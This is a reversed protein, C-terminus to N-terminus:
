NPQKELAKKDIKGTANKPLDDLTIFQKPVKYKALKEMCYNQIKEVSLERGNNLSIFAIPIEGWKEHTVGIVAAENIEPLEKLVQEIELPYINEGGSIIMDKKRGAVYIFGEE